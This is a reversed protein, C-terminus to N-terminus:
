KKKFTSWLAGSLCVSSYLGSVIGIILPLAFERISTVGLIYIMGITLLTTITTNLSRTFTQNIANNVNEDFSKKPYLKRNERVRDFVVITANISYGLITLYVAILKSNMPIQFLSYVATMVFLDHVLCIVAAVGSLLEFRITIYVLMLIVVIVTSLIASNRLSSSVSASIDSYSSDETNIGYQESMADFFSEVVEASVSSCTIMYGSDYSQVSVEKAQLYEKALSEVESASVSASGTDLTISTGGKFDTGWNFGRIAISLIGVVLVVASIIFFIKKKGIFDFSKM